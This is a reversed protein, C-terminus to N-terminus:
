KNVIKLQLLIKKALTKALDKEMEKTFEQWALDLFHTTKIGYASILWSIRAAEKENIDKQNATTKSKRELGVVGYKTKSTDSIRMKGREISALISKMGEEGLGKKKFKYPSDPANSSDLRGQVGKNVYDAYEIMFLNIETMDGKDTITGKFNDGSIMRGSDIVGKDKAKESVKKYFLGVLVDLANDSEKVEKISFQDNGGVELNLIEEKKM